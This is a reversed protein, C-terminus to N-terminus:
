FNKYNSIKQITETSNVPELIADELGRIQRNHNTASCGLFLLCLFVKILIKNM